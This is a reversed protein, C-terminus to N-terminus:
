QGKAEETSSAPAAAKRELAKESGLRVVAKLQEQREHRNIYWDKLLLEVLGILKEAEGPDIEIILDIEKEMHAGINGISRVADIAAWTLPDVKDHLAEIEDILRKGVIGWFDRIMGQLCRRALTSSAKPSAELILCAETYDTRIAAPIYEPFVRAKSPPLLTWEHVTRAPTWRQPSSGPVPVLVKVNVTVAFRKCESNPCRIVQWGLQRGGESGQITIDDTGIRVDNPTVTTDRDCFPCRWHTPLQKLEFM